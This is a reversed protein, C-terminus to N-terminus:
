IVVQSPRSRAVNSASDHQYNHYTATARYHTCRVPGTSSTCKAPSGVREQLAGLVQIIITLRKLCGAVDDSLGCM